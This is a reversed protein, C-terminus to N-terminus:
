VGALKAARLVEAVSWAQAFCGGPRQPADGDFVECIQGLCAEDMHKLLPSLWARAQARAEESSENVKLYAEIFAGILWPWVTGNHYAADRQRPGGEIRGCYKSEGQALTRLGYPTLLERRVVEVIARQQETDLVSVPLSAAFVQNPRISTDRRNGEVVDALGRFPSVWFKSLFSSKVKRALEHRGLQVLASYWLAQIEVPKGQRPTFAIGDCKADMWTLQTTPDGQAVLGDEPDMRIFYRTGREYGAVIAECAPKLVRDFGAQDGSKKLYEFCAHAFWLSADVTNYHPEGTYDDFRNPIMGDSVHSAFVSLAAFADEFRGTELLLGPIAIMTDRGWDLFWPYGAIITKGRGEGPISKEVVFADAADYLKEMSQSSGSPLGRRAAEAAEQRRALQTEWDPMDVPESSAWIVLSQPQAKVELVFRGPNWLEEIHDLGRFREVPYVHGYWWYPQEVWNARDSMLQLFLASDTITVHKGWSHMQFRVDTGHRLAHFDRMAVFPLLELRVSRRGPHVTYRVGSLNRGSCLLLEKEVTANEVRYTWKATVDVEFRELHQYGSPHVHEAFQNVSLEFPRESGELHLVEGIRSLMVHRGAPPKLAACLLSHYRRTNCGVVTGSAFAGTGNTLLWEQTIFPEWAGKTDISHKMTALTFVSM